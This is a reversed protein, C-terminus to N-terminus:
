LLNRKREDAAMKRFAQKCVEKVHRMHKVPDDFEKVTEIYKEIMVAAYVEKLREREEKSYIKDKYYRPMSIKKGDEIPVYMRNDLDEKHWQIMSDSMYNAGLRKSMLRFEPLRDDNKHQPVKGRKMMYKLTYGISAATVKGVTIHGFKWQPCKVPRRGDCGFMALEKCHEADVFLDICANFVIAHYHPRMSVGGYEGVIFYKIPEDLYYRGAREHDRRLRKFFLQVARKDLSMFGRETLPVSATDYTLTLFYASMVQKEHIRLRFSWESGKRKLCEPCKSCPVVRGDNLKIAQQCM